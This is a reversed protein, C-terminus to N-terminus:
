QQRLWVVAGHLWWREAQNKEAAIASPASAIMGAAVIATTGLLVKKM